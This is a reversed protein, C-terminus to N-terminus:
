HRAPPSNVAAAFEHFGEAAALAARANPNHFLKAVAAMLEAQLGRQSEPTLLLFVFRVPQGDPADFDIGESRGVALYPRDLGPLRAHPVALGEGVATGIQRERALVAEVVADAQLAARKAALTGLTRIAADANGVLDTLFAGSELLDRIEWRKPLRLFRAILPGALMSTTLATIVIAVFLDDRIVGASRALGALVIEMAGGVSMAAAVARGEGMTLGAWRAVGLCGIGNGAIVIAFVCLTLLPDFGALFDVRLGIGALFVPAFMGSVFQHIVQRTHERLHRSNGIAAGALFAGFIAHVGIAEAASGLLLACAVTFTLVGPASLRSQVWPIAAHAAKRGVTLTGIALALTGTIATATGGEGGAMMSLVTSFLIWGALDIIMAASMLLVGLDSKLLDLDQLIRSLVPLATIALVTGLLVAFVGDGEGPVRGLFDPAAYGAAAALAFPCLLGAAAVLIAARGQRIMIDFEIELGASLLLLCVSILFFAALGIRVEGSDPFLTAWTDPAIRGLVTRGLLIGALVEGVVSPLAFRRALEGLARACLLLLGITLLLLSAAHGDM